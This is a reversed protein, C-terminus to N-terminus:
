LHSLLEVKLFLYVCLYSIVHGPVNMTANKTLAICQLSFFTGGCPVLLDIHFMM